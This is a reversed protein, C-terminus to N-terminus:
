LEYTVTYKHWLEYPSLLRKFKRLGEHGMDENLNMYETDKIYDRYMIYILYVLGGEANSKGFYLFSLKKSIRECIIYGEPKEGNYLFLGRHVKDDYIDLMVELVKKECGYFSSCYSCDRDKCWEKEIETCQWANSNTIPRISIDQKSIFKNIRKRKYYNISGSLSLLDKLAYAYESNDASYTTHLSHGQVAKYGAVLDKDINKVQLFPLEAKKCLACLSDIIPQLPHSTEEQPSHITWYIDRGELFFVSCLFDNIIKYLGLYTDQWTVFMTINSEQLLSCHNYKQLLPYSSNTFPLFGENFFFERAKRRIDDM